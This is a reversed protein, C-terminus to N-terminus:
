IKKNANQSGQKSAAADEAIMRTIISLFHVLSATDEAIKDRNAYSDNVIGVAGIVSNNLIIPFYAEMAILCRGYSRCSLCVRHKRPNTIIIHEGTEFVKNYAVGGSLVDLGGASGGSLTEGATAVRKLAADVIEVESKTRERIIAAYDSLRSKIGDLCAIDYLRKQEGPEM